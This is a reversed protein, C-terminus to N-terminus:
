NDLEDDRHIRLCWRANASTGDGFFLRVALYGAPVVLEDEIRTVTKIDAGLDPDFVLVDEGVEYVAPIYLRKVLPEAVYIDRCRRDCFRRRLLVDLYGEDALAGGCQHCRRVGAQHVPQAQSAQKAQAELGDIGSVTIHPEEAM